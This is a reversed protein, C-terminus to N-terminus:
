DHDDGKRDPWRGNRHPVQIHVHGNGIRARAGARQEIGGRISKRSDYPAYNIVTDDWPNATETGRSEHSRNFWGM